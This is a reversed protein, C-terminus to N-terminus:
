FPTELGCPKKSDKDDKAEKPKFTQHTEEKSVLQSRLFGHM